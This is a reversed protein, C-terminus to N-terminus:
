YLARLRGAVKLHFRIYVARGDGSMGTRKRM